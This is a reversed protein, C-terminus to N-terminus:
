VGLYDLVFCVILAINLFVVVWGAAEDSFPWIETCLALALVLMLMLSLIVILPPLM